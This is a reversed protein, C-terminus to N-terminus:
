SADYELIWRKVLRHLEGYRGTRTEVVEGDRRRIVECGTAPGDSANATVITLRTKGDPAVYQETAGDAPVNYTWGRGKPESRRESEPGLVWRKGESLDNCRLAHFAVEVARVNETSIAHDATPELESRRDRVTEITRRVARLASNRRRSDAPPPSCNLLSAAERLSGVDAPMPDDRLVNYVATGDHLADSRAVERAKIAAWYREGDADAAIREFASDIAGDSADRGVGLMTEARNVGTIDAPTEFDDEDM